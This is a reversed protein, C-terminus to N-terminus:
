FKIYEFVVQITHFVSGITDANSYIYLDRTDTSDFSYSWGKNTQIGDQSTTGIINVNVLKNLGPILTQLNPQYVAVNNVGINGEDFIIVKRYIPSNNIWKGGTAFETESYSLKSDIYKRQIFSLPAANNTFDQVSFLGISGSRADFYAMGNPESNVVLAVPNSGGGNKFLIQNSNIAGYNNIDLFFGFYASGETGDDFLGGKVFDGFESSNKKIFANVDFELDGTIPKGEETGPLPVSNGGSIEVLNRLLDKAADEQLGGLYNFVLANIEEIVEEPTM